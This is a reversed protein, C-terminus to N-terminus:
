QVIYDGKVSELEGVLKALVDSIEIKQPCHKECVRCKVCEAPSTGFSSMSAYKYGSSSKQRHVLFTNYIEIFMPIQINKPCNPVCYRCGTCPIRPTSNIIEVAKAILAHEEASLPKFNEFTAANDRIQGINEMGSLATILGDLEGVFRFAWSATSVDPNAKKFLETVESEGGALLGGKTPEMISVPKNHKRAIEYCRRSEVEPNDWDLYNIQLQVMEAEPHKTLVDDLLEPTGHFSFGIHKALGREKVGRLFEWTGFEEAMRASDESMAHILYFDVYEVGLRSLSTQLREEQQEAATVTHLSLKTAIQFSDRPHRKVLSECLAVESGEYIYSTDYYSFGHSMFEDVMENVAEVDFRGDKRPLRMYGFGLKKYSEGLYKEM